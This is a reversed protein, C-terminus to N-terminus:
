AKIAYDLRASDSPNESQSYSTTNIEKSVVIKTSDALDGENPNYILEKDDS